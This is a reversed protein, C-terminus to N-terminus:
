QVELHVGKGSPCSLFPPQKFTCCEIFVMSTNNAEHSVPLVLIANGRHKHLPMYVYNCIRGTQFCEFAINM